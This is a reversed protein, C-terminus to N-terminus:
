AEYLIKREREIRSQITQDIDYYIWMSQFM